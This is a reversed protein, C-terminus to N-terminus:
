RMLSATKSSMFLKQLRPKLPFSKMHKASINRDRDRYRSAGCIEFTERLNDEDRFLMCNNPCADIKQSTFGLDETIKKAEYYSAPVRSGEPLVLSFSNLLKDVSKDTWGNIVKEQLLRVIFLLKSFNKCGPYLEVEAEEMLRFFKKTDDNPGESEKGSLMFDLFSQVGSMYITLARDDSEIWSKDM